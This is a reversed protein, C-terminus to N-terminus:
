ACPHPAMTPFSDTAVARIRDLLWRQFHVIREERRSILGPGPHRPSDVGAQVQPLMALDEDIVRKWFRSEIAVCVRAAWDTWPMDGSAAQLAGFRITLRCSRPGSPSVTEFGSLLDLCLWLFGPHVICHTYGADQRRGMRDVLANRFRLWASDQGPAMFRSQGTTLEHSCVDEQPFPGLTAAHVTGVHYSELNNEVLLKWNVPLDIDARWITRTRPGFRDEIRDAEAGLWERVPPAERDFSLFVIAGVTEVRLVDLGLRGKELPRFSPADPIKRTAGTDDYEWGHYNCRLAACRGRARGTLKAM